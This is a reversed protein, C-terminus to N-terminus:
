LISSNDTERYYNIVGRMVSNYARLIDAHCINQLPRFATGVVYRAVGGFDDTRYRAYGKEVLKELVRELPTLVTIRPTFRTKTMYFKSGVTTNLKVPKLGIHLRPQRVLFGLFLVGKSAPVIGTKSTKLSLGISEMFAGIEILVEEAVAELGRFGILFDDAYRIYNLTVYQGQVKSPVTRRESLAKKLLEPNPKDGKKKHLDVLRTLAKYKPADRPRGSPKKGYKVALQEVFDDLSALFINCLVPSHVAGQPVGKKASNAFRGLSDSDTLSVLGSSLSKMILSLTKACKIRSALVARLKKHDISDFCKSVDAEIFYDIEVFKRKIEAHVTQSGRGSRYGHSHNSFTPEYLFSLVMEIAKQVVKDLPAALSLTRSTGDPKPIRVKRTAGWVYKGARLKDSLKRITTSSFGDLTDSTMGPTIIGPKSKLELYAIELVKHDSIVHILNTPKVNCLTVKSGCGSPIISTYRHKSDQVQEVEGTLFALGSKTAYGRADGPLLQSSSSSQLGVAGGRPLFGRFTRSTQLLGSGTDGRTGLIPANTRGLNGRVVRKISLKPSHLQDPNTLVRGLYAWLLGLGYHSRM